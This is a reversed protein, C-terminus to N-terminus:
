HTAQRSGVMFRECEGDTVMVLIESSPSYSRLKNFLLARSDRDNLNAIDSRHKLKDPTLYSLHEMGGSESLKLFVFGRGKRKFGNLASKVISRKHKRIVKERAEDFYGDTM